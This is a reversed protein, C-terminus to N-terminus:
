PAAKLKQMEELLIRLKMKLEEQNEKATAIQQILREIEAQIEQAKEEKSIVTLKVDISRSYLKASADVTQGDATRRTRAGVNDNTTCEDDAELWFVVQDGPKVGLTSLDWHFITPQIDKKGDLKREAREVKGAGEQDGDKQIRYVLWLCRLGWDDRASFQVNIKAVPTVTADRSPKHLKVSPPADLRADIPYEVPPQSNNLGDTDILAMHFSGSKDMTLADLSWWELKTEVEKGEVTEKKIEESKKFEFKQGDDRMLAASTLPKTSVFRIAATSGTLATLGGFKEKPVSKEGTYAPFTYSIADGSAGVNVEPRGLVRITQEDTLLDNLKVRLTMSELAKALVGKFTTGGMPTLEVPVTQDKGQTKFYLTGPEKPVLSTEDVEVIVRLEEGRPIVNGSSGDVRQLVISKIRTKTPFRADANLLRVGLAAFYDPFTFILAGNVALVLIAAIALRKLLTTNIIKGFDLPESMRVTELELAQILEPSGVFHAGDNARTLQLTSILRGRLDSNRSEIRLAIEDDDHIKALEQILARNFIYGVISLGGLAFLWRAGYPLDFLFDLMFYGLVVLVLTVIVQCMGSVLIVNREKGRVTEIRQQIDALTAM